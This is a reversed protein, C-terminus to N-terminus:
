RKKFSQYSQSVLSGFITLFVVCIIISGLVPVFGLLVALVAGILVTVWNILHDARRNVVKDLVSGLVLALAGYALMLYLIYLLLMAFGFWMTLVLSILILAIIPSIILFFAGWGLNSWFNVFVDSALKKSFKAFLYVLFIGILFSSILRYFLGSLYAGSKLNAFTSANGNIQHFETKGMIQTNEGLVVPKESYYVFNGKIITNDSLAVASSSKVLVNGDIAGGISINSGAAKLNGGIHVTGVSIESGALFTDGSISTGDLVSIKSGAILLDDNTGANYSITSGAIRASGGVEGSINLNSGAVFLDGTCGKNVTVSSGAAVLDKEILADVKVNQGAAYLNKTLEGAGVSINSNNSDARFDAALATIPLLLFAVGLSLILKKM